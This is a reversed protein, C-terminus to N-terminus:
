SEGTTETGEEAGDRRGRKSEKMRQLFANEYQYLARNGPLRYGHFPWLRRLRIQWYLIWGREDDLTAGDRSLWHKYIGSYDIRELCRRIKGPLRRTSLSAQFDIIHPNGQADVLINRANRLDLHVIGRAHIGRVVQELELFFPRGCRTGDLIRLACGDVHRYGWACGDILFPDQPVSTLGQLRRVVRYEHRVALRGFTWRYLAPCGSVDKVVWEGDHSVRWLTANFIRGQHLCTKPLQQFLERTLPAHM